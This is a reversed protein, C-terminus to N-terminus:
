ALSICHLLNLPPHSIAVRSLIPRNTAEVSVQLRGPLEPSELFLTFSRSQKNNHSSPVPESIPKKKCQCSNRITQTSQPQGCCSRTSANQRHCCSHQKPSPPQAQQSKCYLKCHQSACLGSSCNLSIVASINSTPIAFILLVLLARKIQNYPLM